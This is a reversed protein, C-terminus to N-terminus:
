GARRRRRGTLFEISQIMLIDVVEWDGDPKYFIATRGQPDVAAFESHDITLSRGRGMHVRFPLFPRSVLAKRLETSTM